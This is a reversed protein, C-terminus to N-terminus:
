DQILGIINGDGDRLSAVQRGGGVHKAEQIVQAGNRKLIELSQHIDDVQYFATAGGEPNHPVLGVDQGNVKFGVYYPQEMYPECELFERFRTTAAAIDRVPYLITKIGQNM